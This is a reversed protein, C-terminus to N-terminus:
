DYFNHRLIRVALGFCGCEQPESRVIIGQLAIPGGEFLFPFLRLTFTVPAGVAVRRELNLYLGTASINILTTSVDFSRGQADVGQARVPFPARLRPKRHRYPTDFPTLLASPM